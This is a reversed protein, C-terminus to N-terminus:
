SVKRRQHYTLAHKVLFHLKEPRIDKKTRFHVARNGEISYDGPFRNAFDSIVSTQCHAYIAFGGTKPVGIRLPTGAKSGPTSYSPQGWKLTEELPGMEPMDRATELILARLAFLGARESDPFADFVKRINPDAIDHRVTAIKEAM